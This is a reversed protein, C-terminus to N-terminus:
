PGYRKGGPGDAANPMSILQGCDRLVPLSAMGVAGGALDLVLNVDAVEGAAKARTYDIPQGVWSSSFPRIM